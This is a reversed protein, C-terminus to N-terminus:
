GRPNSIYAERMDLEREIRRRAEDKLEGSRYLDLIRAREAAILLRDLEDRMEGLRRVAKDGDDRGEILALRDRHLLRLVELRDPSLDRESALEDLASVAARVAEARAWHEETRDFEREKRGAHALGLREIIWPLMLGQGVLTVLILSFTVLLILDRDPFPQGAATTLPIALAAALSVIGRVGTFSIMFAWQWPPAPDRKRVSASLWRPLYVGPFVWLFRALIAVATIVAIAVALQPLPFESIRNALTRAQLGTFLFVMGEIVYIFFEWFFVGQLRTAASILRPGNWSTYLGAAVTALVGSGGLQAPPWFALFPTLISLVIEVLPENAWRRARLMLWGVGVGWVIEGAIIAAFAGAAESLSFAGVSVAAVAFRYLILATADNALGEGELIVLIRRPLEMRRAVALPAVADPPSVIAGLLLGVPWGVGMLWHAAAGVAFTTFLVGGVSLLTIPRLNFCFERWSMNFASSYIVPPLVILLVFEPTLEIPPLGPALSLLLGVLVLLIASPIKLRNSIIAAAALVALLLILMRINAVM